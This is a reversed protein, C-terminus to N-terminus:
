APRAAVGDHPDRLRAIRDSVRDAPRQLEQLRAQERAAEPLVAGRLIEDEIQALEAILTRIGDSGAAVTM